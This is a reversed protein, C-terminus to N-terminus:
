SFVPLRPLILQPCKQHFNKLIEDTLTILSEKYQISQYLEVINTADLMADSPVSGRKKM